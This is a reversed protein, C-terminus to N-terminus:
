APPDDLGQFMAHHFQLRSVLEALRPVVDRLHVPPDIEHRQCTAMMSFLFAAQRYGTAEQIGGGAV